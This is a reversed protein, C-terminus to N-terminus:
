KLPRKVFSAKLDTLGKKITNLKSNRLVFKKKMFLLMGKGKSVDLTM